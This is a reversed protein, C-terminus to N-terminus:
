EGELRANEYGGHEAFTLSRPRDVTSVERRVFKTRDNGEFRGPWNRLLCNGGVDQPGRGPGPQREKRKVVRDVREAWAAAWEKWEQNDMTRARRGCGVVVDMGTAAWGAGKEGSVVGRGDM